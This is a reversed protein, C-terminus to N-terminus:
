VWDGGLAWCLGLSWATSLVALPGWPGRGVQPQARGADGPGVSHPQKPHPDKRGLSGPASSRRVRGARGLVPVGRGAGPRCLGAGPGPLSPLGARLGWRTVSAGLRLTVQAAPPCIRRPRGAAWGRSGPRRRHGRPAPPVPRRSAEEPRQWSQQGRQLRSGRPSWVVHVLGRVWAGTPWMDRTAQTVCTQMSGIHTDMDQVQVRVRVQSTRCGCVHPTWM